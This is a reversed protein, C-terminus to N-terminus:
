ALTRQRGVLQLHHPADGVTPGDNGQESCRIHRANFFELENLAACDSHM